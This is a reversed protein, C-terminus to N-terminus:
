VAPCNSLANRVATVLEDVTIKGDGTDDGAECESLSAQGLAINVMEVLDSITVASAAQCDGVCATGADIPLAWLERGNAADYAPFFLREGAAVFPGPSSSGSGPEIDALQRTGAASGDSEWPECGDDTCAQFVLRDRVATLFAPNSGAAGPAIDSVMMTGAASGDSKWLEAGHVGDDASFFLMGGVRTLNAPASGAAGPNIDSVMTTGARTGDSKWLETGHSDDRASFFLTDRVATLLRPDNIWAVAVTGNATGDSRWLQEADSPETAYSPETFFLTGQVDTLNGPENLGPTERIVQTGAETGDSKWLESATLNFPGTKFFLTGRIDILDVPFNCCGFNKVQQTGAATGDSKWLGSGPEWGAVRGQHYVSFFLQGGSAGLEWLSGSPSDAPLHLLPLTGARTGDSRWLDSFRASFFLTGGVAQMFLPDPDEPAFGWLATVNVTGAPTGDSKWLIQQVGDSATFFLTGGVNTLAVPDSSDADPAINKVLTAEATHARGAAPCLTTLAVCWATVAARAAGRQCARALVNPHITM